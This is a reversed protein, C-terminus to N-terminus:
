QSALSAAQLDSGAMAPVKVRHLRSLCKRAKPPPM